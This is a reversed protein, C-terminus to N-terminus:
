SIMKKLRFKDFLYKDFNDSLYQEVPHKPTVIIHVSCLSM